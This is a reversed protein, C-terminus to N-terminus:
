GAQFWELCRAPDRAYMDDDMVFQPMFTGNGRPLFDLRTRVGEKEIVLKVPVDAQGFAISYGVAVDGTRLGAVFAPSGEKVSEIVLPAGQEDEQSYEFGLDFQFIEQDIVTFCAGLANSDPYITKGRTVGAVTDGLVGGTIYRRLFQDVRTQNMKVGDDRSAALIEFMADDLSRATSMTKIRANWNHALIDGQRYPLKQAYQNSWFNEEVQERTFNKAPSFYYDRLAQNFSIAYDPLSIRGGRLSLLRAYYDTFGETFWYMHEEPEEPKITGGLWNHFLEHSLLWKFKELKEADKSVFLAFARYLGTGGFSCCRGEIPIMSILFHPTGFDQWFSRGDLVTAEALASFEDIDSAWAGRTAIFLPQGAIEKKQLTFDGGIYLSNQVRDITEVKLTVEKGEGFSNVMAWDAPFGEFAVTLNFPVNRLHSPMVFAGEGIIHFYEPTLLPRYYVDANVPADWYKVLDYIVELTQGAEHILFVEGPGDGAEVRCGRTLCSLGRIGKYYENQNAWSAPIELRTRGDISGPFQLTFILSPTHDSLQNTITYKVEPLVEQALLVPTLIFTGFIFAILGIFVKFIATM